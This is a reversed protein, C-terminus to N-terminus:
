ALTHKKVLLYFQNAQFYLSQYMQEKAMVDQLINRIQLIVNIKMRYLKKHVSSIKDM